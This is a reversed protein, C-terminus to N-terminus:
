FGEPLEVGRAKMTKTILATVLATAPALVENYFGAVIAFHMNSAFGEEQEHGDERFRGIVYDGHLEAAYRVRHVLGDRYGKALLFLENKLLGVLDAWEPEQRWENLKNLTRDRFAPTWDPNVTLGETYFLLTVLRDLVAVGRMMASDYLQASWWGGLVRAGAISREPSFILQSPPAGTAISGALIARAKNSFGLNHPPEKMKEHLTRLEDRVGSAYLSGVAAEFRVEELLRTLDILADAYDAGEHLPAGPAGMLGVSLAQTAIMPLVNEYVDQARDLAVQDPVWVPLGDGASEKTTIVAVM